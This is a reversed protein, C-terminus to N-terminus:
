CDITGTIDAPTLFPTFLIALKLGKRKANALWTKNVAGCRETGIPLVAWGMPPSPDAFIANWQQADWAVSPPRYVIGLEPDFARYQLTDSQLPYILALLVASLFFVRLFRHFM